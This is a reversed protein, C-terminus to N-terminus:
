TWIPTIMLGLTAIAGICWFTSRIMDKDLVYTWTYMVRCLLYLIALLHIKFLDGEGFVAVLLAVAFPPFGELANKHAALARKGWGELREQQERPNKNNYGDATLSQAYALPWKTCLTIIWALPLYILPNM